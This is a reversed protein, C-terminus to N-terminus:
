DIMIIDITANEPLLVESWNSKIIEYGDNSLVERFYENFIFAYIDQAIKRAIESDENKAKASLKRYLGSDSVYKRAKKRAEITYKQDNKFRVIKIEDRLNMGYYINDEPIFYIKKDKLLSM